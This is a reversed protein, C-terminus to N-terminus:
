SKMTFHEFYVRCCFFCKIPSAWLLAPHTLQKRSNINSDLGKSQRLRVVVGPPQWLVDQGGSEREVSSGSAEWIFEQQVLLIIQWYVWSASRDKDSGELHCGISSTWVKYVLTVELCRWIGFTGEFRICVFKLCFTRSAITLITHTLELSSCEYVLTFLGQATVKTVGTKSNM